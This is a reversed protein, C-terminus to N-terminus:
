PAPLILPAHTRAAALAEEGTVALDPMPVVDFNAVIGRRVQPASLGLRGEVTPKNRPNLILLPVPLVRISENEFPMVLQGSLFLRLTARVGPDATLFEDLAIFVADLLERKFVLTGRGSRRISLSKGSECGCDVLFLAPD